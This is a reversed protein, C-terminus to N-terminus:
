KLIFDQATLEFRDKMGSSLYVEQSDNVIIAEIGELSEILDLGDKVGLCFVTTSLADSDMSSNAIISVSLIGNEMPYGTYPYIIHHYKTGADEFFREYTGSTVLSFDSGTLTGLVDSRYALPNRIGLVWDSDDSKKGYAYINGGLDIIGRDIGNAELIKVIEDAIFGKAIGGLDISSPQEKFKLTDGNELILNQYDVSELASNIEASDPVRPTETDIGWLAVVPYITIDFYGKSLDGYNISAEILQYIEESIKYEQDSGTNIKYVESTELRRSILQDYEIIQTRIQEYTAELNKSDDDFLNLTVVTGILLESKKLNYQEPSKTCATALIILMASMLLLLRKYTIKM